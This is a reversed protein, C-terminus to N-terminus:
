LLEDNSQNEEEAEQLLLRDDTTKNELHKKSGLKSSSTALHFSFSPSPFSSIPTVPASTSPKSNYQGPYYFPIYFTKSRSPFNQPRKQKPKVSVAGLTLLSSKESEETEQVEDDAISNESGSTEQQVSLFEFSKTGLPKVSDRQKPLQQIKQLLNRFEGTPSIARPPSDPSGCGQLSSVESSTSFNNAELNSFQSHSLGDSSVFDQLSGRPQSLNDESSYSDVRFHSSNNLVDTSDYHLDSNSECYSQPQALIVDSTYQHASHSRDGSIISDSSSSLLISKNIRKFTSLSLHRPRDMEKSKKREKPASNGRLATMPNQFGKSSKFTDPLNSKVIQTENVAASAKQIAQQINGIVIQPLENNLQRNDGNRFIQRQLVTQGRQSSGSDVPELETLHREGIRSEEYSPPFNSDSEQASQTFFSSGLSEIANGTAGLTPHVVYNRFYQVMVCNDGFKANDSKYSIVLPYLDPKATVETYPPPAYHFSSCRSYQPPPYCSGTSDFESREEDNRSTRRYLRSSLLQRKKWLGCGCLFILLLLVLLIRDGFFCIFFIARVYKKKGALIVIALARLNFYDRLFRFLLM